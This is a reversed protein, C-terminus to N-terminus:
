DYNLDMIQNSCIRNGGDDVAKKLNDLAKEILSDRDKADILYNVVGISITLNFEHDNKQFLHSEINTRIKEAVKLASAKVTENLIISFNDSGTRVLLDDTRLINKLLGTIENLVWNGVEDGYNENVIKFNDIDVVLLAFTRKLRESETIERDLRKLFYRRNFLGTLEDVLMASKPNLQEIKYIEELLHEKSVEGKRITKIMYSNLLKIDDQTLSKATFIIIPINRARVDKKLESIVDFGNIEPMMLDLIILDPDSEKAFKIADKGGYAELIGFGEPSLMASLLEVIAPEDDVLLITFPSTKVKTVFCHKKLNSILEDRSIPKVLYDIAGLAFGLDHNDVMSVIIVPIDSTENNSKLEQLVTWGDMKPLMIDLIIAMPKIETAKKLAEEGDYACDVNYGSQTLYIQMLESSSPDDEVVLITPLSDPQPLKSTLDIIVDAPTDVEVPETVTESIEAKTPIIVTFKSGKGHKSKVFIRGGHMEVLKKTLALGLGTGAYQRSLSVDVQKFEHFILELDEEKIGIGTDTVSIELLGESHKTAVGVEGHEPTFKIANSLLNFMIQKFKNEDATINLVDANKDISLNIHKEDALPKILTQVESLAGYLSFTEIHMDMKGAEVKSLDLIDNILNLLHNGSTSINSVYKTQKENLEGFTKEKLVDAFGIISNLPTRLEHSMNALFESKLKSTIELQENALKLEEAKLRIKQEFNGFNEAMSNLSHSLDELEDGTSVNFRHDFNGNGIEIAGAKLKEIPSIFRKIAIAGIITLVIITFAGPIVASGIITIIPSVAESAQQRITFYWKNNTEIFDPFEVPTMSFIADRNSEDIGLIYKKHNQKLITLLDLPLKYSFANDRLDLLVSGDDNVLNLVGSKGFPKKIVSLFLVKSDYVGNLVGIMKNNNGIIPISINLLNRGFSKKNYINSIIPNRGNSNLAKKFWDTRAADKFKSSGNTCAIEGGNLDWLCLAKFLHPNNKTVLSLRDLVYKNPKNHSTTKNINKIIDPDTAIIKIRQSEVSLISSITLSKQKAVENFNRGVSDLFLYRSTFYTSAVGFIGPILAVLVLSYLLKKRLSKKHTINSLNFLEKSKM